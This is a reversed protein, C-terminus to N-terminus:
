FEILQITSEPHQEKYTHFISKIKEIEESRLDNSTSIHISEVDYVTLQGHYQAETYSEGWNTVSIRDSKQFIAKIAYNPVSTFHPKVAPTPPYMNAPTLSDCFTITGKKYVIEKKLKVNITGYYMVNTPPPITGAINVAGHEHDSLYGYIPRKERDKQTNNEIGFMKHEQNARYNPDLTGESRKTEFQSKWRGDVNLVQDLVDVKTARWFESDKVLNEVKTQLQKKLEKVTIGLEIACQEYYLKHYREAQM